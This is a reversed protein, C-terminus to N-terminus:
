WGLFRLVVSFQMFWLCASLVVAALLLIVNQVVEKKGSQRKPMVRVM